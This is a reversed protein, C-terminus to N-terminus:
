QLARTHGAILVAGETERAIEHAAKRRRRQGFVSVHLHKARQGLLPVPHARRALRLAIQHEVGVAKRAAFGTTQRLLWPESGYGNLAVELLM